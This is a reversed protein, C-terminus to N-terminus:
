QWPVMVARAGAREHVVCCVLSPDLRTDGAVEELLRKRFAPWDGLPMGYVWFYAADYNGPEGRPVLDRRFKTLRRLDDAMRDWPATVPKVEVILLNAMRGPVHVLFDPKPDGRIIPHGHKDIEGSLSYPFGEVWHSRWRHYLEYCYVRERYEADTQGAVPMQFYDSGVQSSACLLWGTVLTLPNM